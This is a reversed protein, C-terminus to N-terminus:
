SGSGELKARARRLDGFTVIARPVGNSPFRLIDADNDPHIGFCKDAYNAFPKLAERLESIEKAAERLLTVTVTETRNVTRIEEARAHLREILEKNDTM